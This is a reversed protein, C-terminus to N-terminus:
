PILAAHKEPLEEDLPADEALQEEQASQFGEIITIQEPRTPLLGYRERALTTIRETRGQVAAEIQLKKHEEALARHESTVSAIDYGTQAISYQMYVHSLLLAVPIAVVAFVMAIQLLDVVSDKLFDQVMNRM